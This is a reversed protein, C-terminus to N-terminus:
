TGFAEIGKGYGDRELRWQEKTEFTMLCTIKYLYVTADERVANNLESDCDTGRTARCFIDALDAKSVLGNMNTSAPM